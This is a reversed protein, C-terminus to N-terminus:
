NTRVLELGNRIITQIETKSTDVFECLAFDEPEVEYIGLDEMLEIDGIICAKILQMPYIDLPFVKEYEGTVVLPRVSGHLGTNLDCKSLFKNCRCNSFFGSLFTRSFSYKKFGPLLWGMFDYKNGEAILTVLADSIGLFGDAMIQTGSLVNGSIVRVDGEGQVMQEKVLTEMCAGQFLRYYRPNKAMPGAVAVMKEPRYEGKLFLHGLIAVDQPNMVWVSEGKNIPSIKAIQTGVLGAPHKGEFYHIEVNKANLFFDAKNLGPNVSLHVKGSTLKSLIELGKQFEDGRGQLMFDYDPAVPASDFASVFIAKPMEELSPVIGFPRQKILTWVGSALLTNVITQRDSAETGFAVSEHKGDSEVVVAQLARKAGRVVAKVTGSVPATFNVQPNNKDFFLPSGAKVSDGEKVVLKPVVGIFDTPKVAYDQIQSADSVALEATGQMVIDLGKKIRITNSMAM